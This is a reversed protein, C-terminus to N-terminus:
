YIGVQRKHKVVMEPSGDFTTILGTATIHEGLFYREPRWSYRRAVRGPLVVTFQQYPYDGGFFLLYDDTQKNHWTAYVRGYVMAVEGMNYKADFVSITQIRHGYNYTWHYEPYWKSYNRYMSRTWYINSYSPYYLVNYHHVYTDHHYHFGVKTTPYAYHYHHGGYYHRNHYKATHKPASFRPKAYSNRIAKRPVSQRQHASNVSGKRPEPTSLKRGPAAAQRRYAQQTQVKRAPSAAKRQPAQRAHVKRAPTAKRQPAQRTKVKGHTQAPRAKESPAKRVQTSITKPREQKESSRSRKATQAQISATAFILAVLIASIYRKTKM